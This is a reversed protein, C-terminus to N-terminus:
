VIWTSGRLSNPPCCAVGPRASSRRYSPRQTSTALGSHSRGASRARTIPFTANCYRPGLPRSFLLSRAAGLGRVSRHRGLWARPTADGCQQKSSGAGSGLAQERDPQPPRLLRMVSRPQQREAERLVLATLTPLRSPWRTTSLRPSAVTRRRSRSSRQEDLADALELIQLEEAQARAHASTDRAGLAVSLCRATVTGSRRTFAHALLRGAHATSARGCPCETVVRDPATPSDCACGVAALRDIRSHHRAHLSGQRLRGRGSWQQQEDKEFRAFPAM